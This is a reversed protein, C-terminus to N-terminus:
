KSDYWLNQTSAFVLREFRNYDDHRRKMKYCFEDLYNQLYTDSVHHFIGEISRKFNGITSHVWPLTQHATKPPVKQWTHSQVVEKLKKFGLYKDTHLQASQAVYSSTCDNISLMDLNPMVVMKVRGFKRKPKHKLPKEVATSEAFM